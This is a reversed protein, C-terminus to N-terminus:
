GKPPNPALVDRRSRVREFITRGLGEAAPPDLNALVIVADRTQLDVLLVANLGPAGGAIGWMGNARASATAEFRALLLATHTKDLLRGDLLANAFKLLDRTTSYGGGAPSEVRPLMGSNPELRGNAHTYGIASAPAAAYSGTDTMHASEYVWDHVVDYYSRGTASEVIAGLVTFGLNSYREGTGPDFELKASRALELYNAVKTFSQPDSQYKPHNLYDGFGSRHQLLHRITVRDAVEPAFGKLYKGITDDLGIKGEQALRLIVVSTFVKNISGINFRTESRNAVQTERDASGYGRALTEVGERAILVSGSFAGSDAMRALERDLEDLANFELEPEAPAEDVGFGVIKHPPQPDLGVTLLLNKGARTRLSVVITGPGQMREGLVVAHDFRQKLITFRALRTEFPVSDRMAATMHEDAFARVDDPSGSAIAALLAKARTAATNDPLTGNQAPVSVVSIGFVLMSLLINRIM